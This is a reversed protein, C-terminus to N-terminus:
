WNLPYVFAEIEITPKQFFGTHSMEIDGLVNIAAGTQATDRIRASLVM